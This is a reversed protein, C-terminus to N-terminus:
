CTKKEKTTSEMEFLCGQIPRMDEVADVEGSIPDHGITIANQYPKEPRLTSKAAVSIVCRKRDEKSPTFTVTLTITRRGADTDGAAINAIVKKMEQQFLEEAVGDGITLLRLQMISM